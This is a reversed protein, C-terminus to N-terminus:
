DLRGCDTSMSTPAGMRMGYPRGKPYRALVEKFDYNLQRM